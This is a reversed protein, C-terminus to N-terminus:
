LVTQLITYYTYLSYPYFSIWIYIYSTIFIFSRYYSTTSTYYPQLLLTPSTSSTSDVLGNTTHHLLHLPQLPLILNLYLHYSSLSKYYSTTSNYYSQLLITPSTSTTSDVPSNTTHHLLHLPQLPLILNLYIIHHLYIIQLLKYYQHLITTTSTYYSLLWNRSSWLISM